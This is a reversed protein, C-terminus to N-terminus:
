YLQICCSLLCSFVKMVKEQNLTSYSTMLCFTPLQSHSYHITLETLIKCCSIIITPLSLIYSIDLSKFRYKATQILILKLSCGGLTKKINRMMCIPSLLFFYHYIHLDQERSFTWSSILKYCLFSAFFLHIKHPSFQVFSVNLTDFFRCDM